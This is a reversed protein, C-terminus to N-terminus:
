PRARMIIGKVFALTHREVSATFWGLGVIRRNRALARIVNRLRKMSSTSTINGRRDIYHGLSERIFHVRLWPSLRLWLEYDQASPLTEDFLGHQLLLGRQCVVASTSFLNNRFLQHSLPEEPRYRAGYDLLERSGDLRVHTESHCFFNVEPHAAIADLTRAIKAPDWQDDSDLFATWTGRAARVAANRTAGPGRHCHRLLRVECPPHAGVIQEVVDLTGDTSGDDAVVLEFPPVTQKLVSSLSRDIFERSNYTPCVVSVLPTTAGRRMSM